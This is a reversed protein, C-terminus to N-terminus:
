QEQTIQQQCLYFSLVRGAMAVLMIRCMTAAAVVVAVLTRQALRASVQEVAALVVGALAVQAARALAATRARGAEAAAQM